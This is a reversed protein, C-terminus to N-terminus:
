LGFDGKMQRWDSHIHNNPNGGSDGQINLFEILFTPGHVRYTHGKGLEAQGTFAFHVKGLGADQAKKLEAAAAEPPLRVEAYAKMLKWLTGRQAETLKEGAIGVPGDVKPTKTTEGPEPFHKPQLATKKQDADLSNFLQLALDEISALVRAGKHPGAKVEAPNAGLFSPTAAVIDTGDMTINLSLHHGEVRWGWKGTASPTGFISFFYWEPNRVMAGKKEQDRLISELNMITVASQFGAESTGAKILALAAKKQEASMDELPLGKRTAKKQKDQQPTFFWRTREDSGYDFTARAKQEASLTTLFAQASKVMKSGSSETQQAVYALGTLSALAAMALLIRITKM